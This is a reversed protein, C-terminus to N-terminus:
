DLPDTTSYVVTVRITVAKIPEGGATYLVVTKPAAAELWDCLGGLTRDVALALGINHTLTDFATQTDATTKAQAFVDLDVSHEYNYTLPSMTVQPQGPDGDNMVVLGALPIREPGVEDRLVTAAPITQIASFLAAM